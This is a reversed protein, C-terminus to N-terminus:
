RKGLLPSQGIKTNNTQLKSPPSFDVLAAGAVWDGVTYVRQDRLGNVGEGWAILMRKGIDEFSPHQVM